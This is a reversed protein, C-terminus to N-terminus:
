MLGRERAQVKVITEVIIEKEVNVEQLKECLLCFEVAWLYTLDHTRELARWHSQRVHLIFTWNRHHGLSGLHDPHQGKLPILGHAGDEQTKGCPFHTKVEPCTGTHKEM